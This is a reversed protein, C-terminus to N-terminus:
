TVVGRIKAIGNLNIVLDREQDVGPALQQNEGRTVAGDRTLGAQDAHGAVHAEAQLVRRSVPDLLAHLLHEAEGLLEPPELDVLVLVDAHLEDTEESRTFLM